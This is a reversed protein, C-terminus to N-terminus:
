RFRRVFFLGFGGALTLGGIVLLLLSTWPIVVGGTDPLTAPELGGTINFPPTIVQDGAKVPADPGNPFEWIGEQGADTHLMAYLTETAENPNIEVTVDSNEGVTVPSFGLIPGPKGEQQAHIVMWGPGDSFVKAVTVKGNQIPQDAVGVGATVKFPPTVVQDGVKVPVDPGNPFEWTGEQGADTHLMAYLTGTAGTADIEVVVNSNEGATVPSFGLIPGPKGEQQAHIVLWGPGDSVVTEITVKNNAIAQDSVTVGPTMQALALPSLALLMLMTWSVVFLKRLNYM